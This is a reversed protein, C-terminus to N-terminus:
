FVRSANVNTQNEVQLVDIEYVQSLKEAVDRVFTSENRQGRHPVPALYPSDTELVIRELPVVSRLLAPLHSKKFTVVGNVGLMFNGYDLCEVAEDATGTFSHFIGRLSSNKYPALVDFLERYAERCHIILPLNWEQAWQIQEDFVQQQQLLYTKDWYLDLGVEGIGVYPHGPRLERKVRLLRVPTYDANVSTPHYGILPFCYQPYAACAGLLPEITTDDINPMYMRTVGVDLARRIVEHFDHRFSEDFLHTHTDIM